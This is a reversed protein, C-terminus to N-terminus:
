NLFNLKLEAITVDCLAKHPLTLPIPTRYRLCKSIFANTFHCNLKDDQFAIRDCINEEIEKRMRKQMESNNAMLLM